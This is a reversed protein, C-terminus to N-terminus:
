ILYLRIIIFKLIHIPLHKQLFVCLVLVLEVLLLFGLFRNCRLLNFLRPSLQKSSLHPDQCINVYKLHERGPGLFIPLRGARKLFYSFGLPHIPLYCVVVCRHQKPSHYFEELFCWSIIRTSVRHTVLCLFRSGRAWSLPPNSGLVWPRQPIFPPVACGPEPPSLLRWPRHIRAEGKLVAEETVWWVAEAWPSKLHVSLAKWPGSDLTLLPLTGGARPLPSMQLAQWDKWVEKWGPTARGLPALGPWTMELSFCQISPLLSKLGLERTEALMSCKAIHLHRAPGTVATISLPNSSGGSAKYSCSICKEWAM